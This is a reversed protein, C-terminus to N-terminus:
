ALGLDQTQGFNFLEATYKNSIYLSYVTVRNSTDLNPHEFICDELIAEVLRPSTMTDFIMKSKCHVNYLELRESKEFLM